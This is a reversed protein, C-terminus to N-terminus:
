GGNIAWTVVLAVIGAITGAAAIGGFVAQRVNRVTEIREARVADQVANETETHAVRGPLDASQQAGSELRILRELMATHAKTSQERHAKAERMGDEIHRLTVRIAAIEGKIEAEGAM